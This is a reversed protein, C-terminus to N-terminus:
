VTSDPPTWPRLCRRSLIEVAMGGYSSPMLLARCLTECLWHELGEAMRQDHWSADFFPHPDVCLFIGHCAGEALPWRGDWTDGRSSSATTIHLALFVGNSTTTWVELREPDPASPLPRWFWRGVGWITWGHLLRLM